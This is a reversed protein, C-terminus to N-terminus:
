AYYLEALKDLSHTVNPHDTGHAKESIALARKLLPEAQAYQQQELYSVAM